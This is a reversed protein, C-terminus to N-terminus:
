NLKNWKAWSDRQEVPPSHTEGNPLQDQVGDQVEANPRRCPHFPTSFSLPTLTIEPPPSRPQCLHPPDAFHGPLITSRLSPFCLLFLHGCIYCFFVSLPISFYSIVYNRDHKELTSLSQKKHKYCTKKAWTRWYWNRLDIQYSILVFNRM